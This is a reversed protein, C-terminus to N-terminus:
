DNKNRKISFSSQSDDVEVLEVNERLTIQYGKIIDDGQEVRPAGSLIIKGLRQYAELKEAYARRIQTKGSRLLLEEELKVDDYLVYYKLKKNHNELFIDAQQSSLDYKNKHLKVSKSLSVRSELTNLVMDEASFRMGGEYILHRKLKGKVNGSFEVIEKQLDSYLTKSTIILRDKSKKDKYDTYVGGRGRMKEEKWNYDAEESKYEAEDQKVVVEGYLELNMTKQNMIGSKSQYQVKGDKNIFQGEPETFDFLDEGIIDLKMAELEAKPIGEQLLFYHVSVFKSKETLKPAGRAAKKEAERWNNLALISVVLSIVIFIAIIGLNKKNYM